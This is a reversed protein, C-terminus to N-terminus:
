PTVRRLTLRTMDGDDTSANVISYLAGRVSLTDGEAAASAQWQATDIQAEPVLTEVPVGSLPTGVWPAFFIVSAAIDGGATHLTAPEGASAALRQSMRAFAAVASM